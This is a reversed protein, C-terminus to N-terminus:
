FECGGPILHVYKASTLQVSAALVLFLALQVCVARAPTMKQVDVVNVLVTSKVDVSIELKRYM